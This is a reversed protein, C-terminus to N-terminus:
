SKIASKIKPAWIGQAWFRYEANLISKSYDGIIRVLYMFSRLKCNFKVGMLFFYLENIEIFNTQLMNPDCKPMPAYWLTLSTRKESFKAHNKKCCGNQSEGKQNSGLQCVSKYRSTLYIPQNIHPCFALRTLLSTLFHYMWWTKSFYIYKM